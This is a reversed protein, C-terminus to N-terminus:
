RNPLAVPLGTGAQSDVQEWAYPSALSELNSVPQLTRRVFIRQGDSWAVWARGQQGCWIGAVLRDGERRGLVGESAAVRDM